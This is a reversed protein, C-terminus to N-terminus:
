PRRTFRVAPKGDNRVDYFGEGITWGTTFRAPASGPKAQMTMVFDIAAGAPTAVGHGVGGISNFYVFEVQKGNFSYVSEGAYVTRGKSTVTHVDRVHSGAYVDTFCHTDVTDPAITAAFCHGLLPAFAALPGAM